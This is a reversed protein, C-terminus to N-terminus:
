TSSPGEVLGICEASM